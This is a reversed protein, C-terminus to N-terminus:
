RHFAEGECCGGATRGKGEVAEGWLSALHLLVAAVQHPRLAAVGAGGAL